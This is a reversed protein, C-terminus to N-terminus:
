LEVEMMVNYNGQANKVMAGKVKVSKIEKLSSLARVVKLPEPASVNCEVKRENIALRTLFSKEPLSSAFLSMVHLPSVRGKVREEIGALADSFDRDKKAPASADAKNSLLLLKGDIEKIASDYNRTSMYLSLSYGLLLYVVLRPVIRLGPLYHAAQRTRFARLNLSSINDLFVPYDKQKEEAVELGPIELGAAKIGYLRLTKIDSSLRGLSKIFLAADEPKLPAAFTASGAFRGESFALMNVTEDSGYALAGSAGSALVLDEPIVHTFNFIGKIREAESADWAWVDVLVYMKSREFVRSFVSPKKLPFMEDTDNVVAKRIDKEEMVPYRKRAHLLADRGVVLVKKGLVNFPKLQDVAGSAAKEPSGDKLRYIDIGKRHWYAIHM